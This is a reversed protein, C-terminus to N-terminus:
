HQKPAPRSPPRDYGHQKDAFIASTSPLWLGSVCGADEACSHWMNM